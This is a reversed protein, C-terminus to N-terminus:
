SIEGIFPTATEILGAVFAKNIGLSVLDSLGDNDAITILEWTYGGDRTRFARGVPAATNHIMWGLMENEFRIGIVDGVGDGTFARQAWTVGANETYWLKGDADGIFWRHETVVAVATLNVAPAPGVIAGWAAGGNTTYGVENAEGVAVGYQGGKLVNLDLWDVATIVSDEQVVWTAGADSSFFIEGLNSTAWVANRGLDWMATVFAANATSLAVVTWTAGADDSYAVKAPDAPVTTGLGAIIRRLGQQMTFYVLSSIDLAAGFPATVLADDWTVGGDATVALDATGATGDGAVVGYQGRYERPAICWDDHVFAIAYMDHTEHTARREGEVEVVVHQTIFALPVTVLSEANADPSRAAMASYTKGSRRVDFLVHSREWNTFLDRRGANMKNLILNGPCSWSEMYDLTPGIPLSVETGPLEGAGQIMDRIKFKNTASEDPCYLATYGGETETIDGMEHCGLYYSPTNAGGPQAWISAEGSTYKETM